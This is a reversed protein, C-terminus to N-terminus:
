LDAFKVSITINTNRGKDDSCSIDVKGESPQFFVPEGRAASKYFRNNISWYVREVDNSVHCSLMIQMSDNVNVYYENESIPSTIKPASGQLIRECKPNHPPIKQYKVLNNDYYTILEPQLNPYWAEKYGYEPCCATCYSLTSDPNILVRKLHSCTSNSSVGPIYYDLVLDTCYSNPSLGSQSCVYRLQIDDPMKFWDKQTNYDIANFIQFLLPTAKDAGSLEPVGLGSFNGIWVGVTYKNNYGISWADKRGYSTGTKWAIKPTHSSNAWDIPLDPRKLQTLIETLMFSAGPTILQNSKSNTDNLTYHLPIHVGQNAFSCYLDAMEELSVGCGGLIVSLGLNEKDAEIHQFGAEILRQIFKQPNMDNLIKVAPVNLSGELAKEVTINGNYKNDYNEPEYGSFSVPVDCIITKPSIIGEDFAQAYLLPKLASGPSRVARIGDVQGGDETNNFDASGIYAIVSRSANDVIIVAANKINQFYLRRSYDNVLKECKQQMEMNTCSHIISKGRFKNKLRYCLQPAFRPIAHRYAVLPEEIADNIYAAKFLRAEKYRELWKNREITIADNTIGLRLSVPRNPIISLTAIEAISLQDPMKGFYIVSASKVGEINSGFPALNLYLQLIEKKSFKWELQLARFMELIKNLYTRDKPSVMRAVQMTITSAGSTRRGYRVNNFAARLIAVPNIGYHFYFFRDEKFVIAKRLEPTIEDLETFMRWKDDSTLFAHMLTSDKAVIIPSYEINIKLPFVANLLLFLGFVFLLTKSIKKLSDPLNKYFNYATCSYRAIFNDSNILFTVNKKLNILAKKVFYM